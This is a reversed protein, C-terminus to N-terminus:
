ATYGGVYVTLTKPRGSAVTGSANENGANVDDYPFAYGRGDTEHEHILRGYHNTPNATYYASAPLSPQVNGGPLLLTTRVFAACIRAVAALHVGNGRNEFPGSNCGWIDAASPKQFGLNDGPCSIQGGSVKCSVNGADGQTNVILPQKSYKDWVQNVYSEWYNAFGNPDIVTYDNPSLVRVAAGASNAICMKGWPRGDKSGQQRVGDCITQMAGNTLGKTVQKPTGDDTTLDMSLIMGVFDVYSINAYIAGEKTFTLEVFGWDTGASPDGLNTVSPQVLGDGGDGTRVMAFQLEGEAFYIRGSELSIPLSMSLKQGKGPLSIKISEKVPVPVGSGGSSPYVLTGDQRVFVVRKQPDLGVIYANVARGSFNNVFEFPISNGPRDSIESLAVIKTQAGNYTGNLTNEKTVKMDKVTGPHVITVDSGDRLTITPAAMAAGLLAAVVTLLKM